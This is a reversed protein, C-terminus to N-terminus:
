IQQSEQETTHVYQSPVYERKVAAVAWTVNLVCVADAGYEITRATM